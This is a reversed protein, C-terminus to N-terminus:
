VLENLVKLVKNNQFNDNVKEYSHVAVENKLQFWSTCGKAEEVNYEIKKALKVKFVDLLYCKLPNKPRFNFRDVLYSSEWIHFNDLLKLKDISSVEYSGIIKGFHTLESTGSYDVIRDLLYKIHRFDPKVTDSSEHEFTPFFGFYDNKEDFNKEHIGGKRFILCVKKNEYFKIASSWEKLIQKIVM